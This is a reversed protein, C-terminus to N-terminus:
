IRVRRMVLVLMSQQQRGALLLVYCCVNSHKGTNFGSLTGSCYGGTFSPSVFAAFLQAVSTDYDFREREHRM